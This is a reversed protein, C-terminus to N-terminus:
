EYARADVKVAWTDHHLHELTTHYGLNRLREVVLSAYQYGGIVVFKFFRVSRDKRALAAKIRADMENAQIEAGPYLAHRDAPLKIEAGIGADTLALYIPWLAPEEMHGTSKLRAVIREAESKKMVLHVDKDIPEIVTAKM